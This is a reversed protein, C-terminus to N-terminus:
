TGDGNGVKRMFIHAVGGIATIIELWMVMLIKSGRMIACVNELLMEYFWGAFDLVTQIDAFMTCHIAFSVNKQSFSLFLIPIPHNSCILAIKFARQTRM